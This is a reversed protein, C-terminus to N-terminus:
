ATSSRSQTKRLIWSFTRLILDCCIFLCIAVSAVTLYITFRGMLFHKWNPEKFFLYNVNLNRILEFFDISYELRELHMAIFLYIYLFVYSKISSGFYMLAACGLVSAAFFIRLGKWEWSVFYRIAAVLAVVQILFLLIRFISKSNNLIMKRVM